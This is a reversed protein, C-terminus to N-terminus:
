HQLKRIGKLSEEFYGVVMPKQSLITGEPLGVVSRPWTECDQEAWKARWSRSFEPLLPSMMLGLTRALMFVLAVEQRFRAQQSTFQSLTLVQITKSLLEDVLSDLVKVLRNMSFSEARYYSTAQSLGDEFRKVLADQSVDQANPAAAITFHVASALDDLNAALANWKGELVTEIRQACDVLSFNTEREESRTAGLYYRAVDSHVAKLFDKGWVAHNRSTSFKKGELLYFFNMVFSSPPHITEDYGMLLAPVFLLYFYSNDFGFCQLFQCDNGVLYKQYGSEGGLKQAAYVYGAAMELWEYIVQGSTSQTVLSQPLDIGWDSPHSASISRLGKDLLSFAFAQFPPPFAATSFYERLKQKWPLLDFYYKDIKRSEPIADCVLCRPNHLDVCDNTMGCAECGNGSTHVQCSPCKGHVFAEHLYRQCSECYLAESKKLVLHGKEVLKLFFSQVFKKYSEDGYPRLFLDAQAGVKEQVALIEPVFKEIVGQPTIGLKKAKAPVYSQNDDSGCLYVADVGNMRYFRRLIDAVVYPGSLHGLHLEGNPTPPASAILMRKPFHHEFIRNREEWYISVFKLPITSSLNRLKHEFFQPILVVDGELVTRTEDGIKMEGKGSLILFTESEHHEHETTSHSPPVECYTMGFPMKPNNIGTKESLSFIRQCLIGYAPELQKPDCSKIEM